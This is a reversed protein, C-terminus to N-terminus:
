PLMQYPNQYVQYQNQLEDIKQNLSYVEQRAKEVTQEAKFTGEAIIQDAKEHALCKTEEATKEALIMTNQLTIEMTKYYSLNENLSAIINQLNINERLTEEFARIVEDLFENVDDANYGGFRARKFEKMEIDIPKM